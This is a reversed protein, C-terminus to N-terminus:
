WVLRAWRCRALSALSIAALRFTSRAKILISSFGRGNIASGSCTRTRSPCVPHRDSRGLSQIVGDGLPDRARHPRCGSISRGMTYTCVSAGMLGPLLPPGQDIPIATQSPDIVNMRLASPPLSPRPKAIGSGATRKTNLSNRSCPRTRCVEM